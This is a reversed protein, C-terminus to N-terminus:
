ESLRMSLKTDAKITMMPAVISIVGSQIRWANLVSGNFSPTIVTKMKMQKSRVENAM